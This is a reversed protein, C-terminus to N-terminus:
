TAKQMASNHSTAELISRGHAKNILQLQIM